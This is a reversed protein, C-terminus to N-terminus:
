KNRSENYKGMLLLQNEFVLKEIKRITVPPVGRNRGLRVPQLWFKCEGDPTAVHIHPPENGEDSYFYFRFSGIKMVTPMAYYYLPINMKAISKLIRVFGAPIM